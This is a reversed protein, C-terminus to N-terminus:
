SRVTLIEKPKKDQVVKLAPIRPWRIVQLLNSFDDRWIPDSPQPLLPQWPDRGKFEALDKAMLVWHSPALGAQRQAESLDRQAQQWAQLHLQGALGALVPALDLHRNTINFLLWGQPKLKALYLALAEQTLLHVPVADSSFADMVMLDYRSDPIRGLSLRADGLIVTPEAEGLYGDLYSFYTRALQEVAPDLEFFTWRDGAQAYAALTGIGLGLVAIEPAPDTVQTRFATFVQGVPGSRAFYTLPEAPETDLQETGHLTTGHLLSRFSGVENQHEVIRNLGLANREAHIVELGLKLWPQGLLLVLGATTGVGMAGTRWRSGKGNGSGIVTLWGLGLGLGVLSGVQLVEQLQFRLMLLPLILGLGLWLGVGAGQAALVGVSLGLLLPYELVTEFVQPALLASFMGGLGGGLALWLYFQTLRQAQPRRRALESHCAWAVGGFAALHLPLLLILPKVLGLAQVGVALCAWLATLGLGLRNPFIGGFALMFTILYIGLPIAWLLPVAAVDTTLLTTVAVLLGSPLFALGAWRWPDRGHTTVALPESSDPDQRAAQPDRQILLWGGCLLVLGAVLAYSGMWLRTQWVLPLWPELLLPYGLLGALSGANSAVYLFYPDQAWRSGDGAAAFGQQLLPTTGSLLLMPMGVALTLQVWLALLPSQGGLLEPIGATLRFRFPLLWLGALLFVGHLLVGSRPNLWRQVRDAWLYGLLLAVQFFALCTNWVLPSGGWFPLLLKGVLLQGWFLCFASSFLCLSFLM